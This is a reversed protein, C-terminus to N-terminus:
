LSERPAEVAPQTPPTGNGLTLERALKTVAVFDVKGTGLVPIHDVKVIRQPLFRETLGREKLIPMLADNDAGEQETLLVIAEGRREGPVVAAAHLANPWAAGALNEVTVLSTMEGGIKAFRKLRGRISVYGDEIAVVDGTDHWGDEPH